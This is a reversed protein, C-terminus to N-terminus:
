FLDGLGEMTERAHELHWDDVSLYFTPNFVVGMAQILEVVEQVLYDSEILHGILEPNIFDSTVPVPTWFFKDDGRKIIVDLVLNGATTTVLEYGDPTSKKFVALDKVMGTVRLLTREDVAMAFPSPPLSKLVERLNVARVLIKDPVSKRLLDLAINAEVVSTANLLVQFLYKTDPTVFPRIAELTKVTTQVASRGAFCTHTAAWRNILESSRGDRSFRESSRDLAHLM